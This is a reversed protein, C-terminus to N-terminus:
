KQLFKKMQHCLDKKVEKLIKNLPISSNNINKYKGVIYNMIDGMHFWNCNLVNRFVELTGEEFLLSCIQDCKLLSIFLKMLLEWELLYNNDQLHHGM